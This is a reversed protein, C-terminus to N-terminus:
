CTRVEELNKQKQTNCKPCPCPQMNTEVLGETQGAIEFAQDMMSFVQPTAVQYYVNWGERRDIIIGAERLVKLQQSLYAQRFGTKAELHCVCQEGDRLLLLILRRSRSALAKFILSSQNESDKEEFSPKIM